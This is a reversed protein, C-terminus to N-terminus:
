NALLDQVSPDTAPVPLKRDVHRRNNTHHPRAKERRLLIARQIVYATFSSLDNTKFFARYSERTFLDTIRWRFRERHHHKRWQSSSLKIWLFNKPTPIHPTYM